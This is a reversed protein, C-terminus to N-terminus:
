IVCSVQLPAGVKVFPQFELPITVLVVVAVVKEPLKVTVPFRPADPVSM